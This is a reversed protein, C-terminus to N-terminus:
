RSVEYASVIKALNVAVRHGNDMNLRVMSAGAEHAKEIYRSVTTWAMNVDLEKGGDLTIRTVATSTAPAEEDTKKTVTSM